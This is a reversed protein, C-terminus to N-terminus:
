GPSAPIPVRAPCGRRPGLALRRPECRLDACGSGRGGEEKRPPSGSPSQGRWSQRGSGLAPRSSVGRATATLAAASSQAQRTSHQQKAATLRKRNILREKLFGYLQTRTHPPQTSATEAWNEQGAMWRPSGSEPTRDQRGPLSTDWTAGPGASGM